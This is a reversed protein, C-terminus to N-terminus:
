TCFLYHVIANFISSKLARWFHFALRLISQLILSQVAVPRRAVVLIISLISVSTVLWASRQLKEQGVLSFIM